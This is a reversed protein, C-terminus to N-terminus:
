EEASVQPQHRKEVPGAGDSIYVGGTHVGRKRGCQSSDRKGRSEKYPSEASTAARYFKIWTLLSGVALDPTEEEVRGAGGHVYHREISNRMRLGTSSELDKRSWVGKDHLVPLGKHIRSVRQMTVGVSFQHGEGSVARAGNPKCDLRSM